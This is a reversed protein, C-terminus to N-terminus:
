ASRLRIAIQYSNAAGASNTIRVLDETAATITGIGGADPCGITFHGGPGIPGITGAANLFGKFGNTVTGDITLDTTNATGDFQKNIITIEVMEAATITNGYADTLVGSLDIDDNAGDGVTREAMYLQDHQNADTGDTYSQALTITRNSNPTSGLSATGTQKGNINITTSGSVAM